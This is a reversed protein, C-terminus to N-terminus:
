WTQMLLKVVGKHIKRDLLAHSIIIPRVESASCLLCHLGLHELTFLVLFRFIQHAFNTASKCMDM